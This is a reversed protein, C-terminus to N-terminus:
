LASKMLINYSLVIDKAQPNYIFLTSDKHVSRDLKTTPNVIIQQTGFPNRQYTVMKLNRNNRINHIYIDEPPFTFEILEDTIRCGVTNQNLHILKRLM